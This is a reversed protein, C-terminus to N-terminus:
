YGGGGGGGGGYPGCDYYEYHKCYRKGYNYYYDDCERRQCYYCGNYDCYKYGVRQLGHQMATLAGPLKSSNGAGAALMPTASIGFLVAVGILAIAVILKRM